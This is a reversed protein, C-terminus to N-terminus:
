LDKGRRRWIEGGKIGFKDSCCACINSRKRQGCPSSVIIESKFCEGCVVGKCVDCVIGCNSCMYVGCCECWKCKPICDECIMGKCESCKIIQIDGFERCPWCIVGQCVICIKVKGDCNPCIYGECFKCQKCKPLCNKCIVGECEECFSTYDFKDECDWCVYAGCVTCTEGKKKNKQCCICRM